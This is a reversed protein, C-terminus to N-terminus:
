VELGQEVPDLGGGHAARGSRASRGRGRASRCRGRAPLCRRAAGGPPPAGAGAPPAAAGAPPCAGAAAAVPPCAGAAAPPAVRECRMAACTTPLASRDSASRAAIAGAKGSVALTVAAAPGIVTVELYSRLVVSPETRM